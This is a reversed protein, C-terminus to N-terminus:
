PMGRFYSVALARNRKARAVRALFDGRHMRAGHYGFQVPPPEDGTRLGAALKAACGPCRPDFTKTTGPVWGTICQRCKTTKMM